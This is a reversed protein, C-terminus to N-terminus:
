GREVALDRDLSMEVIERGENLLFELFMQAAISL